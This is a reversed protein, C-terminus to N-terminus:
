KRHLLYIADPIDRELHLIRMSIPGITDKAEVYSWYEERHLYADRSWISSGGRIREDWDM